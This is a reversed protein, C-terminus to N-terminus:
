VHKKEKTIFLALCVATIGATLKGVILPLIMEPDYGASFALHDGFVFAASMAFAMNVVKGRDDMDKVLDFTALSNPLTAVLGSVSVANMGFLKGVAGMPKNLVRTIIAVLPFAGALVIAIEGVVCFADTMSDLGKIVTIDTTLEIGAAVLGVTAVATIFKGFIEFAKIIFKEAKWLGLAILLSVIAIPVINKLVTLPDIGATIGGLFVGIPVTVVGCLIGKAAFQRDSKALVSMAVPITFSVTGGLMSGTIMGGLRAADSNQTLQQALPAGGMDCALITGAFMAPDAGLFRYVPVVVPEMLRAIVPALVIIGIMSLALEGMTKIGNEFSQGLKLRNGFIRDLGGVVAFFAMIIIVIRDFTFEM